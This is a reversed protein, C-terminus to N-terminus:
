ARLLKLKSTCFVQYCQERPLNKSIIDKNEHGGAVKDGVKIKRKQSIYVRIM